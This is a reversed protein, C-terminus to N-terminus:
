VTLGRTLPDPSSLLRYKTAQLTQKQHIIVYGKRKNYLRFGIYEVLICFECVHSMNDASIAFGKKM